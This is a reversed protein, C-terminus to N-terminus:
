DIYSYHSLFKRVLIYSYHIYYEMGINMEINTKM